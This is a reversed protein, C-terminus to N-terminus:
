PAEQARPLHHGFRETSKLGALEAANMNQRHYPRSAVPTLHLAIAQGYSQGQTGKRPTERVETDSM